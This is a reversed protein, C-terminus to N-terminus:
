GCSKLMKLMRGRPSLKARKLKLRPGSSNSGWEAQLEATVIRAQQMERPTAIGKEKKEVLWEMETYRPDLIRLM